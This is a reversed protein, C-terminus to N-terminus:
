AEVTPPPAPRRWRHLVAYRLGWAVLALFGLVLAWAILDGIWSLDISPPRDRALEERLDPGGMTPESASATTPTAFSRTRGSPSLVAVPGTTAAWALVVVGICVAPAVLAARRQETGVM